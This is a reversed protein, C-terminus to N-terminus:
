ADPAPGRGALRDLADTGDVPAHCLTGHCLYLATGGDRSGRGATVDDPDAAVDPGTAPEPSAQVGVVGRVIAWALARRRDEAAGGTAVLLDEVAGHRAALRLVTATELPAQAGLRALHALLREAWARAGGAPLTGAHVPALVHWQLLVEAWAGLASPEAGDLPSAFSPGGQAAALVADGAPAALLAPGHDTRVVLTGVVADVVTRARVKWRRRGTSRYLAIFAGAAQAHDALTGAAPGPRGDLASRLVHAPGRATGDAGRPAEGGAGAAAVALPRCHVRWIAEGAALAQDLLRDEGLLAWAEALATVTMGNWAAVEKGDRAPQPRSAVRRRLGPLARDWLDQEAETLLRGAHLTLAATGPEVPVGALVEALHGVEAPGAEPAEAALAARLEAPTWTYTAGEVPHGDVVTDADLSAAFAGSATTMQEALWSATGLALRRALAPHRPDLPALHDLHDGLVAWRAYWRLLQANDYLMKEFHPLAWTQDTAYRAFGGSVPDALSSTGMVALTRATLAWAQARAPRPGTAAAQLLFGLAPSPPFKPAGPGFGGHGADELRALQAIAESVAGSFPEPGADTEAPAQEAGVVVAALATSQRGVGAALAAAAQEVEGRRHTWAAHVADLVQRFSPTRGGGGHHRPTPPYYTGAHFPRGDPTTFVSMPWGGQGTLLQTATMYAEDVDPHEERDVKVAVFRANLERATDEDEFSEHAMVHCWHCAAYGVSVFVPVDRRAAEAFAAPGWPRWDVPNGAHQLLYPSTADALQNAM